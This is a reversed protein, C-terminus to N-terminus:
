FYIFGGLQGLINSGDFAAFPNSSVQAELAWNQKQYRLGAFLTETPEQWILIRYTEEVRDGDGFIFNLEQTAGAFALWKESLIVEGLINPQIRVFIMNDSKGNRIKDLFFAAIGNNSGVIVRATENQLATYGFDFCVAAALYTDLSVATGSDANTFSRGVRAATLYADYSLSGASGLTGINAEISSDDDKEDYNLEKVDFNDQLIANSSYTLWNVNAYVGGPLSFYLGINDGPGTSREDITAKGVDQHTWIKIVSYKLAIGFASNAYGLILSGVDFVEEEERSNDLGLLMSGGGLDFAAYGLRDPSVYVFKQGNIDSPTSILDLVNNAAGVTSFPNYAHGRLVDFANKAEPVQAKQVPASSPPQPPSPPPPTPEAASTVPAEEAPVTSQSPAQQLQVDFPNQAFCLGAALFCFSLVKAM